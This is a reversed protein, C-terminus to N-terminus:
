SQKFFDFIRLLKNKINQSIGEQQRLMEAQQIISSTLKIYLAHEYESITHLNNCDVKDLAEELEDIDLTIYFNLINHLTAPRAQGGDITLAHKLTVGGKQAQKIIKKNKETLGEGAKRDHVEDFGCIAENTKKDILITDVGSAYDDLKSAHMILCRAGLGKKFIVAALKELLANKDKTKQNEWHQYMWTTLEEETLNELHYFKKFTARADPDKVKAWYEERENIFRAEEATLGGCAEPDAQNGPTLFPFGIEINQEESLRNMAENLRGLRAEKKSLPKNLPNTKEYSM